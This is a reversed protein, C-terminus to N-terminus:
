LQSESGSKLYAVLRGPRTTVMADPSFELAAAYWAPAKREEELAAWVVLGFGAKRVKNVRGPSLLGHHCSLGRAGARRIAPLPFAERWRVFPNPNRSGTILLSPIDPRTAACAKLARPMFSCLIFAAPDEGELIRLVPDVSEVSKFEICMLARGRCLELTEALTPIREGSGADLRKLQDLTFGSVRGRSGATRELTRDHVVVPVGDASLRVDCEIGDAGMRIAAEFAAATNEPCRHAAGRHAIVLPRSSVRDGTQSLFM